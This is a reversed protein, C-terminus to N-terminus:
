LEVGHSRTTPEDGNERRDDRHPKASDAPGSVARANLTSRPGHVKEHALEFRRDTLQELFFLHVRRDDVLDVAAAFDHDRDHEVFHTGSALAGALTPM